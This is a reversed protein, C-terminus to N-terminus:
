ICNCKSCLRHKIRMELVDETWIKPIKITCISIYTRDLVIWRYGLLQEDVTICEGPILIMCINRLFINWIESIAAFKDHAKSEPGTHWNEFQLSRQLFKFQSLCMKRSAPLRYFPRTDAPKSLDLAIFNDRDRGANKIIALVAPLEDISFTKASYCAKPLNRKFEKVKQNTYMMTTRLIEITVMQQFSEKKNLLQVMVKPTETVIKRQRNRVPISRSKHLVGNLSTTEDENEEDSESANQSVEGDSDEDGNKVSEIAYHHSRGSQLRYIKSKNGM